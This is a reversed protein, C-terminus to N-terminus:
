WIFPVLRYKVKKMYLEYGALGNRLVKEENRIRFTLLVPICLAPLLSYLSGLVLPSVCFIISFALYMPHRVISYTGSDILNQDKQIEVVRSAYSNDKMTRFLLVFGGAM